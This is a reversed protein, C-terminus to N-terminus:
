RANGYCSYVGYENDYIDYSIAEDTSDYLFILIHPIALTFYCQWKPLSALSTVCQLNKFGQPAPNTCHHSHEGGVFTAPTRKRDLSNLKGAKEKWLFCCRWIAILIQM